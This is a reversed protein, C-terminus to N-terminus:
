LHGPFHPAFGPELHLTRAHEWTFAPMVFNGSRDARGHYTAVNQAAGPDAATILLVTLALARACLLLPERVIQM